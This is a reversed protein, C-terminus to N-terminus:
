KLAAALAEALPTTPRGILRSLDHSDSALEGNAIGRDAAALSRAYPEPLGAAILARAYEDEDLDRYEVKTGTQRTVEAALETMTFPEDAALEYVGELDDVLVAAAAAAYDARPVAGVRGNNAAGLLTGTGLAPGLNATYNETYWSNRLYAARLGSAQIYEETAKHEAALPIGSTDAKLISTYALLSVSAAVAADVVASHQAVRRGVESGSVLLLRDTGALADPLTAPLDYNAHRVQVGRGTLDAAKAPNRVAAVIEGAPVGRALLAEVTLRGLQGSAATVTIM